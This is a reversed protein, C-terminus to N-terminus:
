QKTQGVIASVPVLVFGRGQLGQAWAAVRSVTVPYLLGSGSAHGFSRAATELNSLQRDIEMASQINDIQSNSQAFYTGTQQAVSPSVSHLASGDDYFLLGRRTLYTLVPSLADSDSLFRGGLFNTVGAYGTFRTLSWVLRQINADEGTGSRLAYKGPDSDPFDYPQMPVELLVEHGRRRAETVWHQVDDAYPLFGLTVASPLADLAASTAKASLGFGDILIAIRPKGTSIVAPAYANMPMTGDDGIRPLPGQPTKEILAQDAVLAGADETQLPTATEESSTPSPAPTAAPPQTPPQAPTAPKAAAATKKVVHRTLDINIQEVADGAHPNGFVAIGAVLVILAAFVLIYALALIRVGHRAGGLLSDNGAISGTAM